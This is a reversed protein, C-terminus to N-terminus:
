ERGGLASELISSIISSGKTSLYSALEQVDVNHVQRTRNIIILFLSEVMDVRLKSLNIKLERLIMGILDTLIHFHFGIFNQVLTILRM